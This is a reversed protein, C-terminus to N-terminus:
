LISINDKLKKLMEYHGKLPEAMCTPDEKIADFFMQNHRTIKVIIMKNNEKTNNTM